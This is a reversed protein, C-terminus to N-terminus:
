GRECYGFESVIHGGDGRSGTLSHSFQKGGPSFAFAENSNPEWGFLEGSVAANALFEFPRGCKGGSCRKATVKVFSQAGEPFTFQWQNPAADQLPRCGKGQECMARSQQVCQLILPQALSPACHFLAASVFLLGTRCMKSM